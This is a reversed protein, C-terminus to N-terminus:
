KSNILNLSGDIIKYVRNCIKNIDNQDHSVLITILNFKEIIILLENRLKEKLESDIASFPEDLLLIQPDSLIARGLAVRQKEGGSLQNPKYKRSKKLEILDLMEEIRASDKQNKMGFKLNEEVTMNPFLAYDQFLFGVKRSQPKLYINKNQWIHNDVKIEGDSKELGALIRLLTTKGSGSRGVIGIREGDNITLKAKLESHALKKYIDIEIIM